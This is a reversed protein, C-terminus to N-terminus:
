ADLRSAEFADEMMARFAPLLESLAEHIRDHDRPIGKGRHVVNSRLQYYYEVCKAPDAFDFRVRDSPRDARQVSREATGFTQLASIFAPENALQKVKDFAKEGLHYRLSAYREISSWLLLYAMQLRFMPKLDWQFAYHEILVEEVVELAVTFLPDVRGDWEPEDLPVAGKGPSRGWLINCDIGGAIARGWSYQHDPEIDVVRQYALFETGAKFFLLDGKLTGRGQRDAIPLGDRIRLDGRVTSSATREVFEKVRLFGLQGPRFLGYAFFPSDPQDPIEM